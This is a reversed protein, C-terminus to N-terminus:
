INYILNTPLNKINDLTYNSKILNKINIPKCSITVSLSCFGKANNKSHVKIRVRLHQNCIFEPVNFNCIDNGLHYLGKDSIQIYYCGKASYLKKITDNPCDIYTDNFDKTGKKIKLWELHTINRLFFPPINSNFLVCDNLLEEFILKSELPIKCKNSGIWKKNENNYHISCQMYDPSKMKKIEIPISQKNYTCIIDNCSKCGGIENYQQKNFRKNNIYCKTIINYIKSEYEKGKVSCQSVKNNM